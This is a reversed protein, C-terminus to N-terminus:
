VQTTLDGQDRLLMVDEEAGDAVVDREASGIRVLVVYAPRELGDVCEVPNVRRRGAEVGLDTAVAHWQRDRLRLLERERADHQDVRVRQHEVLRRRQEVRATRPM